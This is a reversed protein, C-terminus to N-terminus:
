DEEDTMEIMSILEDLAIKDCHTRLIMGRTVAPESTDNVFAEILDALKYAKDDLTM